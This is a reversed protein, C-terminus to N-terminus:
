NLKTKYKLIIIEIIPKAKKNLSNTVVTRDTKYIYKRKIGNKQLKLYTKLKQCSNLCSKIKAPAKSSSGKERAGLVQQTNTLHLSIKQFMKKQLFYAKKCTLYRM